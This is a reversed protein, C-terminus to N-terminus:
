QPRSSRSPIDDSERNCTKYICIDLPQAHTHLIRIDTQTQKHIYTYSHLHTHSTYTHIYKCVHKHM